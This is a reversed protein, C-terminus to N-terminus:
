KEELIDSSFNSSLAEPLRSVFALNFVFQLNIASNFVSEVQFVLSLALRSELSDIDSLARMGYNLPCNTSRPM